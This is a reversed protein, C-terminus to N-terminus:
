RGQQRGDMLFGGPSGKGPFGPPNQQNYEQYWVAPRVGIDRATFSAGGSSIIASLHDRFVANYVYLCCGDFGQGLTTRLWWAGYNRLPCIELTRARAM